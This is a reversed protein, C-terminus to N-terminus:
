SWVQERLWAKSSLSCGAYSDMTFKDFDGSFSM